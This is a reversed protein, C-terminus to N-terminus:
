CRRWLNYPFGRYGNKGLLKGILCGMAGDVDGECVIPSGVTAM